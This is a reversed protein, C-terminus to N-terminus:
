TGPRNSLIAVWRQLRLMEITFSTKFTQSHAPWIAAANIRGKLLLHRIPDNGNARHDGRKIIM